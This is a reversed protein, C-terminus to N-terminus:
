TVFTRARFREDQWAGTRMIDALAEVCRDVEQFRQYLPALGFRMLSPARFDGLIGQAILAQMIEYGHEHAVAVHSARLTPDRPSVIEFGQGVCREDLLEIFLESLQISKERLAQLDVRDFVELSAELASLALVEPTGALMRRIGSAPEFRAEFAFPSKHGLWGSIVPRITEHWRRPVFTFAPSGPGGNLYKYTCGVAFDVECGNLDVPIAGASHSLDWLVLGGAAHTARTIGDMDFITATRYDVHSLMVLATDRDIASLVEGIPVREIAVQTGLLRQLGELVYLDTPFNAADTVIKRRGSLGLAIAAVNFLNVSTSNGVVIEDHRAGLLRAIRGGVRAPLNMWDHGLWSGVLGAAWETEAVSRLRGPVSRPMRGLSNGVLYVREDLVFEDAVVRLPDRADLEVASPLRSHSTV